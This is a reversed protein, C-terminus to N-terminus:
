SSVQLSTLDAKWRAAVSVTAPHAEIVLGAGAGGANEPEGLLGARRDVHDDDLARLLGGLVVALHVREAARGGVDLVVPRHELRGREAQMEGVPVGLGAQDGGGARVLPCQLVLPAEERHGLELGRQDVGPSLQPLVRALRDGLDDLRAM